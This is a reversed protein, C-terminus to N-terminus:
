ERRSQKHSVCSPCRTDATKLKLLFARAPMISHQGCHICQHEIHYQSDEMVVVGDIDMIGAEDDYGFSRIDLEDNDPSRISVIYDM